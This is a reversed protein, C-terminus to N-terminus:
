KHFYQLRKEIFLFVVSAIIVAIVGYLTSLLRFFSYYIRDPGTKTLVVLIFTVGGIRANFLPTRALKCGFLTLLLGAMVILVAQHSLGALEDIFVAFIGVLGGVATVLLRVLGAKWSPTIGEQVCLLTTICATMAQFKPIVVALAMCLGASLVIQVDIKSILPMKGRSNENILDNVKYEKRNDM